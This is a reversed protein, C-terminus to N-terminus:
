LGAFNKENVFEIELEVAKDRGTVLKIVPNKLFQNTSELFNYCDIVDIQIASFTNQIQTQIYITLETLLSDLKTSIDTLYTVKIM